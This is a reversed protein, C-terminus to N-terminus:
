YSNIIYSSTNVNPPIDLYTTTHNNTGPEYYFTGSPEILKPKPDFCNNTSTAQNEMTLQVDEV